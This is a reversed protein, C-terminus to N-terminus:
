ITNVSIFFACALLSNCLDIERANIIKRLAAEVELFNRTYQFQQVITTDFNVTTCFSLIRLERYDINWMKYRFEVKELVM